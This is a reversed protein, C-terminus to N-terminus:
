CSPPAITSTQSLRLVCVLLAMASSIAARGHSVTNRSGGYAWSSLGTSGTQDCRFRDSALRVLCVIASSVASTFVRKLRICYRGASSAPKRALVPSSYLGNRYCGM